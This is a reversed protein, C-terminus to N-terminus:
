IGLNIIVGGKIWRGPMEINAYDNYAQDFLNTAEIYINLFKWNYFLKADVLSFPKYSKEEKTAFDVYTGARDQYTFNWSAGLGKYIDHTINLSLKHQLYDLLYNSSYNGSKKEVDVYSYNISINHIPCKGNFLSRTKFSLSAEFGNTNIETINKSEWKLSDAIRVWDIMNKGERRFAAFHSNIFATNYKFGGEYTIAEEPKLNSNGINTPGVYYLDTYTPMRLSQNASAFIKLNKYIEYSLDIGPYVNWDFNLDSNWNALLGISGAFRKLFVTHDVFYSLNTRSASKTFKGNSEGPVDLTDTMTKGLVNSWINESRLEAGIATKGLKSTFVTNLDVGYVDTLHYNHGKYWYITDINNSWYTGYNTYYDADERFLEFRDQNRRWYANASFKIDSGTTIKANAFTTKTEEFQNPYKNTYFNCAGFAKNNYGAQLNIATNNNLKTTNQFFINKSDFDTNKIYGDSKKYTASIYNVTNKIPISKSISSNIFGNEGGSLKIKLNKEETNTIINIAGSFANPGFVRSGPGELIEIREINEIDIPLNLNHHGTQPDNIKVGNLLILTQEFSGGRISIDAQVGNNGRQRVDVNLAYKLLDQLNDVPASKIEDKSIVSIVRSSESYLTPVRNSSIEIEKIKITDTQAKACLPSILLNYGAVLTCIKILKKMSNFASYSKGSWKKFFLQPVQKNTQQNMMILLIKTLFYRGFTFIIILFRAQKLSNLSNFLDEKFITKTQYKAYKLKLINKQLIM